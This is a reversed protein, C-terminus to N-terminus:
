GTRDLAVSARPAPATFEAFKLNEEAWVHIEEASPLGLAEQAWREAQVASVGRLVEKIRPIRHPSMSLERVGMGVLLVASIPDAAMEGCVSVEIGARVASDIVGRILRLVAPHLPDYLYSV